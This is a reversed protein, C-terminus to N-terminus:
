AKKAHHGAWTLVGFGVGGLINGLTVPLLNNLLFSGWTLASTDLGAQAALEAYKPVSAAFLGAPVYFMNAVCHEFGCIVFMAVAVYAGVARGAVDKACLAMMVSACVLVNCFIGLVFANAFPMASKAAALKIAYVALGGGAYNFQGFYACAVALLLAGAFNGMYVFLWNHLLKRITTRKELVAIPILCNGTFLEAGTLMVVILGLPFLLGSVMRAIGANEISHAATLAVAAGLAIFLGGNIGLLFLKWAPASAKKAGIVAYNDVFEAPSFMNM